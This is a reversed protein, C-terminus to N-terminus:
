RRLGTSQKREFEDIKPQILAMVDADVPENPGLLKFGGGALAQVTATNGNRMKVVYSGPLTSREVSSPLYSYLDRSDSRKVGFFDRMSQSMGSRADQVRQKVKHALVLQQVEADSMQSLKKGDKRNGVSYNIDNKIQAKATEVRNKYAEPKEGDMIGTKQPGAVETAYTDLQKDFREGASKERDADFQDQKLKADRQDKQIDYGTKIAQLRNAESRLGLEQQKTAADNENKAIRSAVGYGQLQSLADFAGDFRGGSGGTSVPRGRFGGISVGTGGAEPSANARNAQIQTEIKAVEAAARRQADENQAPQTSPVFGSDAKTPVPATQNAPKAMPTPLLTDAVKDGLMYGGAGGAIAGAPGVLSGGVSGLIGGGVRLASRSAQALRDSTSMGSTPDVAARVNPDTVEAVGAIVPSAKALKSMAPEAKSIVGRADTTYGPAAAPRGEFGNPQSPTAGPTATGRMGQIKDVVDKGWRNVDGIHRRLWSESNEAM